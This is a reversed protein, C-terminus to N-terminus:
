SECLSAHLLFPFLIATEQSESENLVSAPIFAPLLKNCHQLLPDDSRSGLYYVPQQRADMGLQEMVFLIYYIVDEACSVEFSNFFLPACNKVAYLYLRSSQLEAILSRAKLEPHQNMWLFLPLSHHMLLAGPFFARLLVIENTKVAFQVLAPFSSLQLTIWEQDPPLPILHNLPWPSDLRFGPPVFVANASRLFILAPSSCRLSVINSRKLVEQTLSEIMFRELAYIQGKHMATLILQRSEVLLYQRASVPISAIDPVYSYDSQTNNGTAQM